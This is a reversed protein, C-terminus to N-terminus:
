SCNTRIEGEFLDTLVQVNGLKAMSVAFQLRFLSPQYALAKVIPATRRDTYLASDSPLLGMKKPLNTYYANDFKNPTTADLDVYDSAWRCKRRLFNVYSTSMSPDMPVLGTESGISDVGDRRGYPVTWYPGGVLITAERAAATLIDACSVTKPCKKELEAKIDDIVEFGRLTKSAPARRESGEYDLLISADCGRVVCDHFHLRIISAAITNDEDYWQKLKQHIIRDVGPCSKRYFGYSLFDDFDSSEPLLPVELSTYEEGDDDYEKDASSVVAAAQILFIVSLLVVAKM